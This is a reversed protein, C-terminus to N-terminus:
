IKVYGAIDTASFNIVKKISKWPEVNENTLADFASNVNSFRKIGELDNQLNKIVRQIGKM